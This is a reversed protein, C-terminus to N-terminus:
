SCIRSAHDSPFHLRTQRLAHCCNKRVPIRTGNITIAHRDSAEGRAYSIANYPPASEARPDRFPTHADVLYEVLPVNNKDSMASPESWLTSFTTDPLYPAHVLTPWFPICIKSPFICSVKLRLVDSVAAQSNSREPCIEHHLTVTPM